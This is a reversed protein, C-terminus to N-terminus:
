IWPKCAGPGCLPNCYSDPLCEPNCAGDLIRSQAAVLTTGSRTVPRCHSAPECGSDPTCPKWDPNCESTEYAPIRSGPLTAAMNTVADVIAALSGTTVNGAHMWRTLPCPTVTGDPLVAARGHGCNGCAQSPDPNTGRGFERLHDGGISTVGRAQLVEIGEATHQGPLIGDIVGARLPELRDSSGFLSWLEADEGTGGGRGREGLEAVM